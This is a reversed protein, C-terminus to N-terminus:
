KEEKYFLQYFNLGKEEDFGKVMNDRGGHVYLHFNKDLKIISKMTKSQQKVASNEISFDSAFKIDHDEEYSNKFDNFSEIIEPQGIVEKAFDELNYEEKEKFYAMSKNLFAAQDAKNIDFIQPLKNEVFNKCLKITEKTQFFDDNRESVKLFEDKWFVADSSKNLNDVIALVYGREKETNFILCGKDLKNINIGNQTEVNYNDNNMFVKLFTEKTESKFIGIADAEEDDLIIQSFYCVYLEGEKIKPHTSQAYLHNAINISQDYLLEPDDFIKSAYSYIENLEINYDHNFNFLANSKFPSLFYAMLVNKIEEGPKLVSKSIQVGEDHTRNGVKHIVVEQLKTDPFLIM